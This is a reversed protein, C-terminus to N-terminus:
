ASPHKVTPIPERVLTGGAAEINERAASLPSSGKGPAWWWVGKADKTLVSRRGDPYVAVWRRVPPQRLYFVLGDM